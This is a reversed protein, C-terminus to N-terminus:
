KKIIFDGKKMVAEESGKQMKLFHEKILEGRISSSLDKRFSTIILCMEQKRFLILM